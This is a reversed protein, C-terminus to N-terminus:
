DILRKMEVRYNWVGWLVIGIGIVIDILLLIQSTLSLEGDVFYGLNAILLWVTLAGWIVSRILVTLANGKIQRNFEHPIGRLMEDAYHRAKRQYHHNILFLLPTAVLFLILYINSAIDEM